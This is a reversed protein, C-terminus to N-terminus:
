NTSAGGFVDCREIFGTHCFPLVKKLIAKKEQNLELSMM